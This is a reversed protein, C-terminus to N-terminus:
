GLGEFIGGIVTVVAEGTAVVVTGAGEVVTGVVSGVVEGVGEVMVNGAIDFVGEAISGEEEQKKPPQPLNAQLATKAAEIEAASPIGTM